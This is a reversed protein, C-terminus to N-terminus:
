DDSSRSDEKYKDTINKIFDAHQNRGTFHDLSAPILEDVPLGQSRIWTKVWQLFEDKSFDSAAIIMNTDGMNDEETIIKYSLNGLKEQAKKYWRIDREDEGHNEGVCDITVWLAEGEYNPDDPLLFLEAWITREGEPWEHILRYKWNM